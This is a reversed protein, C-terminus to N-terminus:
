FHKVGVIQVEAELNIGFKAKVQRKALKSLAIIDKCSAGGLNLFFNAHKSSIQAKGIIKGKLGAQEILMGAPSLKSPNKFFSGTTFGFPQKQIRYTKHKELLEKQKQPSINRKKLKFTADILIEGTDKLKGHRYKYKFYVAKVKHIKDTKPNLITAKVLVDKTELGNCGANGCVAGGVTGPLGEWPELDTLKEKISKLLLQSILVGADATIQSKKVQINQTEIKIVLGRFGKDDFLINSGGGFIFIPIPKTNTKAHITRFFKIIEPLEESNKLRYFFDAPGGIKFTSYKGLPEDFLLNHFNKRLVERLSEKPKMIFITSSRIYRTFQCM